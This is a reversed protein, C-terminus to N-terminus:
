LSPAIAIASTDILKNAWLTLVVDMQRNPNKDPDADCEVLVRRWLDSKGRTALESETTLLRVAAAAYRRNRSAEVSRCRNPAVEALLGFQCLGLFAERPCGKDRAAPADAFIEATAARWADEAKLQGQRLLTVARLAAQGYKGM